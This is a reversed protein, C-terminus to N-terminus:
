HGHLAGAAPLWARALTLLGLAVIFGGALRVGHERWRLAPVRPAAALFSAHMPVAQPGRGRWWLGLGGMALMAPFTGLGFTAMLQLGNMASGCTATQAVFAYVLPCPLFGNLVGLALPAGAGPARVLRGLAHALAHVVAGQAAVTAGGSATRWPGAVRWRWGLFQLGVGVMLAGSVLAIVRQAAVGWNGPSQVGSGALLLGAHGVVTGLFCYSSERGLNYLLHRRLSAAGGGADAGLGCAFGGCMGICHMSGALGALFVLLYPTMVEIGM